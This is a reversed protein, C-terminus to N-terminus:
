RLLELLSLLSAEDPRESIRIRSPDIRDLGCAVDASLCLHWCPQALVGCAQALRVFRAATERSYHLVADVRGADFETMVADPFREAEIAAYVEHVVVQRGAAMLGAELAPKRPRGALYHVVTEPSLDVCLRSLLAQVTPCIARIDTFGAARAIADCREGVAYLPRTSLSALQDRPLARLANASTVVIVESRNDARTSVGAVPLSVIRFLPALVPEQGLARLREATVSADPEARTVLVQM